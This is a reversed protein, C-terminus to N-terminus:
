GSELRTVLAQSDKDYRDLSLAQRAAALAAAHDGLHEDVGALDRFMEPSYSGLRAATDFAERAAAWDADPAPNGNADFNLAYNGAEIAYAAEYPAFSRAQAIQARSVLIPTVQSSYYDADALYPLVVAPIALAALAIPGVALAPVAVRRPFGVLVTPKANPAWTVIAAAAFLWFPVATPLYSFDVQMSVQYAVWGAFLAVAGPQLRGAWFARVFAFLIWVYAVLGVIGQAALVGLAEEHPKDFLVLVSHINQSQFQPYVLGFTDPGYGLIPRSAILPLTDHWLAFRGAVSGSPDSVSVIRSYIHAVGGPVSAPRLAVFSAVAGFAIVLLAAFAVVPVLRFRGQRLALVLALGIVAGIWASRTFTALLGLSLVIVLNAALLRTLGSQRKILQAFAVPLLMALFIGLFDPQAMTADARIYTSGQFYGGGLVGFASQLVAIVAIVYGSFLLSWTMWRADREGSILQVALWFLLAYMTITLLGEWRSYTGFIAVNRNVAFITSLAASGIFALLPLDLATRKWTITGERLWGAVLVVALVMVLLRALLLKPLVSESVVTPLISLPILFVAVVLIWRAVPLASSSREIQTQVTQPAVDIRL